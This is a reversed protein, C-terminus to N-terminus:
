NLLWALLCTPYCSVHHTLRHYCHNKAWSELLWPEVGPNQARPRLLQPSAAKCRSVWHPMATSCNIFLQSMRWTVTSYSPLSKVWRQPAYMPLEAKWREPTLLHFGATAAIAHLTENWEHIFGHTDPLVTHDKSLAHWVQASRREPEGQLPV